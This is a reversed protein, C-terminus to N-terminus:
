SLIKKVIGSAKGFDMQGSYQGKLTGMVRGMDRLGEAGCASIAQQCATETEHANLQAPLFRKIIDIERREEEALELRAGEEYLRASEERQKVMKALVELIEDDSIKGDGGNRQSIDRDKIAALILRLTNVETKDKSQMAEKLAKSIQERM